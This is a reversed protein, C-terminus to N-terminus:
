NKNRKLFSFWNRKQKEKPLTPQEDKM